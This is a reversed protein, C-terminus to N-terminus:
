CPGNFAIGVTIGSYVEVLVYGRVMKKYFVAGMSSKRWQGMVRKLRTVVLM